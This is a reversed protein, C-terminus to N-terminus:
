KILKIKVKGKNFMSVQYNENNFDYNIQDARLSGRESTLIVDNYVTATENTSLLDLNNSLIVTEGDTARVNYEFFCNYNIKDYRGQDSTIIVIRGDEMTIVVRMNSMYVIDPSENLIHAEDSTVTFPKDLDYLGKTIGISAWAFFKEGIQYVPLVYVSLFGVESNTPQFRFGEPQRIGTIPNLTYSAGLSASWSGKQFFGHNYGISLGGSDLEQSAGGVEFEPASGMEVYFTGSFCLSLIIISSLLIKKM